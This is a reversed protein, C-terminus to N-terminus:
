KPFYLLVLLEFKTLLDSNFLRMIYPIRAIHMVRDFVDNAADSVSLSVSVCSTFFLVPLYRHVLKSIM